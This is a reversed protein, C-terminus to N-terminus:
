HPQRLGPQGDVFYRALHAKREANRGVIEEFDGFQAGGAHQPGVDDLTVVGLLVACALHQDVGLGRAPVLGDVVGIDVHQAARRFGHRGGDASHVRQLHRREVSRELRRGFEGLANGAVHFQQELM